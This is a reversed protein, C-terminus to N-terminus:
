FIEYNFEKEQLYEEPIVGTYIGYWFDEGEPTEEWIFNGINNDKTPESNHCNRYRLEALERLKPPLESIKM